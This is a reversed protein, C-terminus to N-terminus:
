EGRRLVDALEKSPQGRRFFGDLAIRLGGELMAIQMLTPANSFLEVRRGKWVLLVRAGEIEQVEPM